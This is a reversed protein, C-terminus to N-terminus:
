QLEGLLEKAFYDIVVAISPFAAKLREAMTRITDAKANDLDVRLRENETTLEKILAIADRINDQDTKYPSDNDRLGQMIQETLNM